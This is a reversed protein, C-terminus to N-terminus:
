APGGSGVKGFCEEWFPCKDGFRRTCFNQNCPIKMPDPSERWYAQIMDRGLQAMRRMHDWETMTESLEALTLVFVHASAVSDKNKGPKIATVYVVGGFDEVARFLSDAILQLHKLYAGLQGDRLVTRKREDADFASESATKFEVLWWKGQWELIADVKGTFSDTKLELEPFEVNPHHFDIGMEEFKAFTVLKMAELMGRYDKKSEDLPRLDALAATATGNMIDDFTRGIIFYEADANTPRLKMVYKYAYERLCGCACQVQSWSVRPPAINYQM